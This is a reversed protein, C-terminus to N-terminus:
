ELWDAQGHRPKAGTRNGTKGMEIRPASSNTLSRFIEKWLWCAAKMGQLPPVAREQRRAPSHMGPKQRIIIADLVSFYSFKKTVRVAGHGRSRDAFDPTDWHSRSQFDTLHPRKRRRSPTQLSLTRATILSGDHVHTISKSPALFEVPFNSRSHLRRGHSPRDSDLRSKQKKTPCAKKELRTAVTAVRGDASEILSRTARHLNPTRTEAPAAV